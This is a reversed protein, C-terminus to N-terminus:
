FFTTYAYVASLMVFITTLVQGLRRTTSSREDSRTGEVLVTLGLTVYLSAQLFEGDILSLTTIVACVALAFRRWARSSDSRTPRDQAM